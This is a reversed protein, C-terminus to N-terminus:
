IASRFIFYLQMTLIRDQLRKIKGSEGAGSVVSRAVSYNITNGQNTVPFNRRCCNLNGMIDSAYLSEMSGVILIKSRGKLHAHGPTRVLSESNHKTSFDM